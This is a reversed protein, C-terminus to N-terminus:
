GDHDGLGCASAALCADILMRQEAARHRRRRDRSATAMACVQYSEAEYLVGLVTAPVPGTSDAMDM